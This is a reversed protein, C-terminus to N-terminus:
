EKEETFKKRYFLMVMGFGSALALFFGFKNTYWDSVPSYNDVVIVTSNTMSTNDLSYGYFITTNEGSQLYLNGTFLVISLFFLILLGIIAFFNDGTYYALILGIVALATFLIFMEFMM